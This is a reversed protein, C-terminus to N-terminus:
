ALVVGPSYTELMEAVARPYSFGFRPDWEDNPGIAGIVSPGRQTRWLHALVVKVAHRVEAPVYPDGAVYTVVFETGYHAYSWNAGVYRRLIGSGLNAKYTSPDVASGDQTVSTISAVPQQSLLIAMGPDIHSEVVTVRHWLRTKAEVFRSSVLLIGLLEEDHDKDEDPINLHAKAESLGILSGAQIADVHFVDVRKRVIAGLSGGTAVIAMEHRGLMTNTFDINYLGTSPNTPTVSVPASGDPQYVTVAVTASAPNDNIDTIKVATSYTEGLEVVGIM